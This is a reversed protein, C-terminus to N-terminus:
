LLSGPNDAGVDGCPHHLWPHTYHLVPDIALRKTALVVMSSEPSSISIDLPRRGGRINDRSQRDALGKEADCRGSGPSDLQLDPSIAAFDTIITRVVARGGLNSMYEKAM